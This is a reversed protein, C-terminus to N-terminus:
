SLISIQKEVLYGNNDVEVHVETGSGLKGKEWVKWPGAHVFEERTERYRWVGSSTPRILVSCTEKSNEIGEKILGGCIFSIYKHRFIYKRIM